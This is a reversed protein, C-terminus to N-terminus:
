PVPLLIKPLMMRLNYVTNWYYVHLVYDQLLDKKKKGGVQM